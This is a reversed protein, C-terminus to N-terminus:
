TMIPTGFINSFCGYLFVGMEYRNCGILSSRNLHEGMSSLDQILSSEIM